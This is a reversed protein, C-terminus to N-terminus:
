DRWSFDQGMRALPIECQGRKRCRVHPVGYRCQLTPFRVVLCIDGSRHVLYRGQRHIGTHQM